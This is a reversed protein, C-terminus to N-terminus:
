GAGFTLGLAAVYAEYRTSHVHWSFHGDGRRRSRLWFDAWQAMGRWLCVFGGKTRGLGALTNWAADGCRRELGPEFRASICDRKVQIGAGVCSGSGRWGERWLRAQGSFSSDSSRVQHFSRTKLLSTSHAPPSAQVNQPSM